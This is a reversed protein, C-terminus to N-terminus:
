LPSIAYYHTIWSLCANSHQLMIICCYIGASYYALTIVTWHVYIAQYYSFYCMPTHIAQYQLTICAYALLYGPTSQCQHTISTYPKYHKSFCSYGTVNLYRNNLCIPPRYGTAPSTFSMVRFMPIPTHFMSITYSDKYHPMQLCLLLTLTSNQHNHM